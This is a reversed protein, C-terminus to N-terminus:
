VEKTTNVATEELIKECIWKARSIDEPTIFDSNSHALPTRLKSLLSFREQWIGKQSNKHDGFKKGFYSWDQGIFLDWNEQPYSYWLINESARQGFKKMCNDMKDKWSAITEIINHKQRISKKSLFVDIWEEGYSGVLYENVCERIRQETATWLPWINFDTERQKLYESFHQSITQYSASDNIDTPYCLLGYKLLKETQSVTVDIIPGITNQILAGLLDEEEAIAIIKDYQNWLENRIGSSVKESIESNRSDTSAAESFVNYNILDMLFPFRGAYYEVETIYQESISIGMTEVWKWYLPKDNRLDFMGLRLDAFVGYFNSIGGCEEELEQLTNRSVTVICLSM